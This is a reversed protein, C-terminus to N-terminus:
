FPTDGSPDDSTEPPNRTPKRHQAGPFPIPQFPTNLVRELDEEDVEIMRPGARYLRVLGAEGWRKITRPHRNAKKAALNLPLGRRFETM